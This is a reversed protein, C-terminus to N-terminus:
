KVKEVNINLGNVYTVVVKEDKKIAENAYANWIEGHVFVKGTQQPKLNEHAVGTEGILGDAGGRPKKKRFTLMARLIVLSFILASAAFAFIASYSVRMIPDASEFLLLSGLVLCVLGGLTLFGFTPTYAEAILLILGLILLALGAYNTPLTQMSYFALILFITGMVGPV